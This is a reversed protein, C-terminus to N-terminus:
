CTTHLIAFVDKAELDNLMQCAQETPVAVLKIGRRTAEQEIEPMVPLRGYTGTGVILRGGGWPIKEKVSLPTHGTQERYQKSPGKKRKRVKGAEIVVDHDYRQEEIEIEGFEILRAQM